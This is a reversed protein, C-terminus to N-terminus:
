SDQGEVRPEELAQNLEQVDRHVDRTYAWEAKAIELAEQLKAVAIVFVEAKESTEEPVDGYSYKRSVTTKADEYVQPNGPDRGEEYYHEVWQRRCEEYATQAVGLENEVQQEGPTLEDNPGEAM